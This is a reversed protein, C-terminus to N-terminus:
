RFPVKTKFKESIKNNVENLCILFANLSKNLGSHFSMGSM